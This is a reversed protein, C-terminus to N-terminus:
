GGGSHREVAEMAVKLAAEVKPNDPEVNEDVAKILAELEQLLDDRSEEMEGRETEAEELEAEFDELAKLEDIHAIVQAPEGCAILKARLEDLFEDRPTNTHINM